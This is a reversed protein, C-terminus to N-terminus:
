PREGPLDFPHKSSSRINVTWWRRSMISLNLCWHCALCSVALAAASAVTAQSMRGKRRPLGRKPPAKKQAM